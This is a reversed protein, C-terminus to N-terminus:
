GREDVRERERVSKSAKMTAGELTLAILGLRVHIWTYRTVSKNQHKRSPKQNMMVTGCSIM